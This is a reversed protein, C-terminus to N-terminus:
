SAEESIAREELAASNEGATLSAQALASGFTTMLSAIPEVSVPKAPMPKTVASASCRPPGVTLAPGSTM